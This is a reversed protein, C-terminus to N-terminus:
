VLLYPDSIDVFSLGDTRGVMAYERGTQPDTWGWIDNVRTGRTGGMDKVPLFSLVDVNSCEFGAARDDTCPVEGGVIAEYGKM